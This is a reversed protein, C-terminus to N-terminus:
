LPNYIIQKVIDSQLLVGDAFSAEVQLQYYGSTEFDDAAITYTVVGNTLDESTGSRTVVSGDSLNKIKVSLGLNGTLDLGTNFDILAGVTTTFLM